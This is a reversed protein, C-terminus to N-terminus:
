GIKKEREMLYAAELESLEFTVNESNSENFHFVPPFTLEFILFDTVTIFLRGALLKGTTESSM